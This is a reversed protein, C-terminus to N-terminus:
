DTEQIVQEVVDCLAALLSDASKMVGKKDPMNNGGIAVRYKGHTTANDVHFWEVFQSQDLWEMCHRVALAEAETHTVIRRMVDGRCYELRWDQYKPHYMLRYVVDDPEKFSYNGIQECIKQYAELATM